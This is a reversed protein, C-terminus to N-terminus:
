CNVFKDGSYLINAYLEMSGVLALLIKELPPPLNFTQLRFDYLSPAGTPIPAFGGFASSLNHFYHM